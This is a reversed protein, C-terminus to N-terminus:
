PIWYLNIYLCDCRSLHEPDLDPEILAPLSPPNLHYWRGYWEKMIWSSQMIDYTMKWPASHFERHSPPRSITRIVHLLTQGDIWWPPSSSNLRLSILQQHKSKSDSETRAFLPLFPLLSSHFFFIPLGFVNSTATSALRTRPLGSPTSSNCHEKSWCSLGVSRTRDM